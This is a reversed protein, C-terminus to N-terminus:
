LQAIAHICRSNRRHFSAASNTGSAIWTAARSRGPAAPSNPSRSPGTSSSKGSRSSACCPYGTSTRSAPAGRIEPTPPRLRILASRVFEIQREIADILKTQDRGNILLASRSPSFLGGIREVQVHGRHIKTDIVTVGGPGIALHDINAQGHGPIRRDHLLRVNKGALHRALRQATWVEGNAGQRWVKTSAPEDTVRSLIAGLGGLAQTAHDERAQHRRNYERM